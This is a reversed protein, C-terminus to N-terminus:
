NGGPLNQSESMLEDVEDDGQYSSLAGDSTLLPIITQSADFTTNGLRAPLLPCTKSIVV